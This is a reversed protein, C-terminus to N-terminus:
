RGGPVPAQRPGAFIQMQLVSPPFFVDMYKEQDSFVPAVLVRGSQIMGFSKSLIMHATYTSYVSTHKATSANNRQKWESLCPSKSDQQQINQVNITTQKM